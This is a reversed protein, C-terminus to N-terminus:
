FPRPLASPPPRRACRLYVPSDGVRERIRKIIATVGYDDIDDASILQFGVAEDNELDAIGQM